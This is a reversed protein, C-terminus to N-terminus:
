KKNKEKKPRISDKYIIGNGLNVTINGKSNITTNGIKKSVSVGKKGINLTMGNGLNIRKRVYIGM